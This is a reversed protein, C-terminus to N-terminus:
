RNDGYKVTISRDIEVNEIIQSSNNPWLIKLLIPETHEALGFHLSLDNQNGEGTGAEVQRTLIGKSALEILVQTGIASRNVAEGDGELRVILWNRSAALNELLKGATVLDLDGDQDYDAWAAQYTPPLGTLAAAETGDVFVFNSDNRFLVPNNKHGFSATEYVTTFFLDLDGDNDMDGAAPSAYSEQYFVGCPGRDDFIHGNAAGLNRLFRSKPQDGRGDVHAFNGVFLDFLGDNDFDGWAAGISHGGEFGPSTGISNTEATADKFQAMGNNRWLVNPQLRYNSVYIDLDGDQDFDCATVGRARYRVENWAMRFSKGKENMLLMQPYTIGADWDEYGGVYLDVFGDGDFDGCCAGRSVCKPLSPMELPEFGTGAKNHFARLLSWSFLDPFGDNDFDAAVVEGLGEALKVFNRGGHNRWVVGGALLDVWGDRDVDVWCAQSNALQLGLDSTRDRFGLPPSDAAIAPQGVASLSAIVIWGIRIMTACIRIMTLRAILKSKSIMPVYEQRVEQRVFDLSYLVSQLSLPLACDVLPVLAAADQLPDQTPLARSKLFM